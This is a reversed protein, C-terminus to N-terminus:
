FIPRCQSRYPLLRRKKSSGSWIIKTWSAGQDCQKTRPYSAKHHNDRIPLKWCAAFETALIQLFGCFCQIMSVEICIHIGGIVFHASQIITLGQRQVTVPYIDMEVVVVKISGHLVSFSLLLKLTLWYKCLISKSFSTSTKTCWTESNQAQCKNPVLIGYQSTM